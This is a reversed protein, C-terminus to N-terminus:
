AGAGANVARLRGDFGSRRERLLVREAFGGRRSDGARNVSRSAASGLGERMRVRSVRLEFSVGGRSGHAGSGSPVATWVAQADAGSDGSSRVHVNAGGRLIR